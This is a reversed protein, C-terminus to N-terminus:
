ELVQRYQRFVQALSELQDKGCLVFGRASQEAFGSAWVGLVELEDMKSRLGEWLLDCDHRSREISQTLDKDAQPRRDSEKGMRRLGHYKPLLSRERGAM